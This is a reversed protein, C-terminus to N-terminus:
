WVFLHFGILSPFFQEFELARIKRGENNKYITVMTINLFVARHRGCSRLKFIKMKGGGGCCGCESDKSIYNQRAKHWKRALRIWNSTASRPLGDLYCRKRRLATPVSAAASMPLFKGKYSHLFAFWASVNWSCMTDTVLVPWASSCPMEWGDEQNQWPTFNDQLTMDSNSDVVFVCSSPDNWSFLEEEVEYRSSAWRKAMATLLMFPHHRLVPKFQM